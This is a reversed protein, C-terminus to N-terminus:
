HRIIVKLAKIMGADSFFQLFYVGDVVSSVDIKNSTETATSTISQGISNVLVVETIAENYEWSITNSAPNPFFSIEKIQEKEVELTAASIDFSVLDNPYTGTFRNVGGLFFIQNNIVFSGPAWRSKGPHPPFQLWSDNAPNYRWMEGTDMYSHDDGDGSLIFGYGDHNFQTGAVRGEGPFQNMPTWTNLATDLQYWDKFIINGSHGMGAFIKGGANFMYPHHRAPGPLNAMQSWTNDTISYVWWDRKDSFQDNGLGVYIRNGSSIMAPHRRSSCGCSALQTYTGSIPDFSWFDKLYSTNTAGFGFYAKGNLTTGIGFSRAVGPFRSLTNWTNTNPDYEYVDDTPQGSPNTGSISYGKGNLAFTIPHHKGQPVDAKSVWSQASSSTSFFILTILLYKIM